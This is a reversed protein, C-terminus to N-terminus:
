LRVLDNVTELGGQIFFEPDLADDVDIRDIHAILFGNCHLFANQCLKAREVRIGAQM